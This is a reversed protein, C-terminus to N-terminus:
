ALTNYGLIKFYTVNKGLTCCWAGGCTRDKPEKIRNQEEWEEIIKKNDAYTNESMVDPGTWAKGLVNTCYDREYVATRTRAGWRGMFAEDEDSWEYPKM